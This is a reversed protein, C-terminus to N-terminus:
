LIRLRPVFVAFRGGWGRVQPLQAMIEDAINWPL